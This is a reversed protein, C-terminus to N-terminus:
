SVLQEIFKLTPRFFFFDREIIEIIKEIFWHSKVPIEYRNM